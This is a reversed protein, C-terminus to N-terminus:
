VGRSKKEKFKERERESGPDQRDAPITHSELSARRKRRVEDHTSRKCDFLLASSDVGLPTPTSIRAPHRSSSEVAV